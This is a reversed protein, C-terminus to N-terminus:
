LLAKKKKKRGMERLQRPALYWSLEASGPRVPGDFELACAGAKKLPLTDGTGFLLWGVLRGLDPEHGVLVVTAGRDMGSLMQVVSEKSGAPALAGDSVVGERPTIVESLLDATQMCRKLPSTVIVRVDDEIQAL